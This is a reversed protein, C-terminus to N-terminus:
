NRLSSFFSLLDTRSGNVQLTGNVLAIPLSKVGSLVSKLDEETSTVQVSSGSVMFPQVELVGKRLFVSFSKTSNTFTFLLQINKDLSKEPIVNVKLTEMFSEIPYKTIAEINPLLIDNPQYDKDLEAASSLYYYRSNPNSEKNGLAVLSSQRLLKAQTDDPKSKLLYDTLQLSWQFEGNSYSGEATALLSDWGGALKIFNEAEEIQPLPKLSSPNGNFWGLYGSFVNKASWEPSGYFEKLFPSDGLHKPLVLTEAIDDPGLGLNMLRVTQDHVFQIGDRYTTLIENINDQGVLPRTHSPILFEPQLYRMVDISNVWGALDRYPTGRITYLNPFTKYFNDGPFLAKKEPLWVFLQDNTEGPAHFLEVKVGGVEFKIKDSFTKTPYLLGPQRGDRGIELFPGIGNNEVESKPLSNGFMRNSRASIIPRIIGIVRSLYEETSDHAYIDPNSDEAFVTAGYTHDGHNHTYIIAEIPNSNIADFLAKVERATEITGTTDIIINSNEGEVLIANALAYGIAVHVGETVEIVEKKFESTHAILDDPTPSKSAEISTTESCSFIIFFFPIFFLFKM